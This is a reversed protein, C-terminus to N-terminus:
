FRKKMIATMVVGIIKCNGNIKVPQFQPNLPLLMKQGAESVLLKITTENTDELLAVVVDNNKAEKTSCAIIISGDEISKPHQPNYMSFGEVKMAFSGEPVEEDVYIMPYEDVTNTSTWKGASVTDILPIKHRKAMVENEGFLLYQPTTNLAKALNDINEPYRRKGLPPNFICNRCFWKLL